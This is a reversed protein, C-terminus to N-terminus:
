VGLRELVGIDDHSVDAIPGFKQGTVRYVKIALKRPWKKHGNIVQSAFPVSVGGIQSLRSATLESDPEDM